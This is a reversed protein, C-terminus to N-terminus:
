APVQALMEGAAVVARAARQEDLRKATCAVDDACPPTHHRCGQPRSAGRRELRLKNFQSAFVGVTYGSRQVFPDTSRFFATLLERVCAEGDINALRKLIAGDKKGDIKPKVGLHAVFGDHYDDILTRARTPPLASLREQIKNLPDLEEKYMGAVPPPFAGVGMAPLPGDKGVGTAAQAQTDKGGGMAPQEAEKGVGTDPQDTSLLGGDTAPQEQDAPDIQVLLFALGLIAGDGRRLRETELAGLRRLDAIAREVSRPSTGMEVALTDIKPWARRERNAYKALLAYLHVARSDHVRKLVWHPIMCFPGTQSRITKVTATM